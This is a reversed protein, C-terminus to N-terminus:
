TAESKLRLCCRLEVSGKILGNCGSSSMVSIIVNNLVLADKYYVDKLAFMMRFLVRRKLSTRALSSLVVLQRM